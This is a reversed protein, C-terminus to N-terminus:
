RGRRARRDARSSLMQFLTKGSRFGEIARSTAPLDLYRPRLPPRRLIERERLEEVLPIHSTGIKGLLLPELAGGGALHEILESLGRVYVADKTLGGGRFIRLTITFATRAAFRWTRHLERFVDVFSAGALMDHAAVVRAVLLRRRPTSLGGVFHEALVALGEQLPDYGALGSYLQRFPQSRGNWYTSVHTGVEHQLLAEVRGAPFSSDRGILLSGHSVMLGSAIDARVEVRAEMQPWQARLFALEKEARRAFARADLPEGVGTRERGRAPLRELLERSVELLPAEVGGFLQISGHVFRPTNMDLLLTVQRDLEDQKERFLQNLAPDAIREIPVAFLRRKLLTPDTALPRYQFVPAREYRSREFEHWAERSNVPTVQLLFDFGDAVEALKTDVDWVVRRIRRPGIAHHHSLRVSTWECLFRYAWRRLANTLDRRVARLVLPYARGAGDQYVPPLELGYHVCRLSRARSPTLLAKMGPAATRGGRVAEVEEILGGLHACALESQVLDTLRIYETAKPAFVRLRPPAGPGGRPGAWVELLLVSGFAESSQRVIGEVLEHVPAGDPAFVVSTTSALLRETGSDAGGPPRRYVILFPLPRDLQVRVGGPGRRRVSKGERLRDVVGAAFAGPDDHPGPRVPTRPDIPPPTM